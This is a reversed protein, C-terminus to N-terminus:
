EKERARKKTGAVEGIDQTEEGAQPLSPSGFSGGGARGVTGLRNAPSEVARCTATLEKIAKLIDNSKHQEHTKALEDRTSREELARTLQAIKAKAEAEVRQTRMLAAALVASIRELEAKAEAEVHQTRMLAAALEAETRHSRISEAELEASKKVLEVEAHHARMSETKLGIGMTALEIGARANLEKNIKLEQLTRTILDELRKIEEDKQQLQKELNVVIDKPVLSKAQSIRKLLEEQLKSNEEIVKNTQSELIRYKEHSDTIERELRTIERKLEYVEKGRQMWKQDMLNAKEQLKKYAIILDNYKKQLTDFDEKGLDRM